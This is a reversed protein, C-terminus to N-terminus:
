QQEEGSDTTEQTGVPEKYSYRDKFADETFSQNLTQMLQIVDFTRKRQEFERRSIDALTYPEEETCVAVQWRREMGDELVETVEGVDINNAYSNWLFVITPDYRQRFLPVGSLQRDFPGLTSLTFETEGVAEKFVSAFQEKAAEEIKEDMEEGVEETIEERKKDKNELEAALRDRENQWAVQVESGAPSEALREEANALKKAVGEDWEKYVKDIETQREAEIEAIKEPIKAKALRVLAEELADKQETGVDGSKKEYYADEVTEKIDDWPKLPRTEIETVQFLFVADQATGPSSGMDGPKQLNTAMLPSSSATWKGFGIESLDELAETNSSETIEELVVGKRLEGNEDVALEAFQVRLDFKVREADLAEQAATKAAKKAQLEEDAARLAQQLAEDEPAEESKAKAEDYLQQSAAQEQTCNMFEDSAAKLYETQKKRIELNLRILAERAQAFKLLGEAVEESDVEYYEVVEPDQDDADQDADEEATEEEAAEEAAEEGAEEEGGEEEDEKGDEGDEEKPAEKKFRFDREYQYLQDRLSDTYNFQELEKTWQEPDFEDLKVGGIVMKVKNSDLVQLRNKEAEEQEGLWAKLGEDDVPDEERMKDALAKMDFTAVDLTVKERDRLIEEVISADSADVGASQLMVFTGIRMAEKVLQRYQALSSMGRRLAFQATSDETQYQKNWSDVYWQIAADVDDMSVDLGTEIAVRRLIALRQALDQSAGRGRMEISPMVPPLAGAYNALQGGIRRDEETVDVTRGEVHITAPDDPMNGTLNGMWDTMAGTISFTLLAFLGATYLILKQYKRFFGFAGEFEDPNQPEAPAPQVPPNKTDTSM